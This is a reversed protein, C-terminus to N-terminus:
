LESISEKIRQVENEMKNVDWLDTLNFYRIANEFSTVKYGKNRFENVRKSTRFSCGFIIVFKTNPTLTKYYRGGNSKCVEAISEEIVRFTKANGGCNVNGLDYDRRDAIFCKFISDDIEDYQFNESYRSKIEIKENKKKNQYRQERDKLINLIDDYDEPNIWFALDKTYIRRYKGDKSWGAEKIYSTNLFIQDEGDVNITNGRSHFIVKANEMEDAYVHIYDLTFEVDYKLNKYNANENTRRDFLSNFLDKLIGM